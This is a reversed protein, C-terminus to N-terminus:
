EDTSRGELTRIKVDHGAAIVELSHIQEGHEDVREKLDDFKEALNDISSRLQVISSNLKMIPTIVTIAAAIFGLFAMIVTDQM